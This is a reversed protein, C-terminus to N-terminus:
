YLGSGSLSGFEDVVKKIVVRQLRDTYEQNQFRM